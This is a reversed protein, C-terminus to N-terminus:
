HESLVGVGLNSSVNLAALLMAPSHCRNELRSDAPLVLTGSTLPVDLTATSWARPLFGGPRALVQAEWSSLLGAGKEGLQTTQPLAKEERIM